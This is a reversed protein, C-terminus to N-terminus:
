IWVWNSLKLGKPRMLTDFILRYGNSLHYCDREVLFFWMFVLINGYKSGMMLGHDLNWWAPKSMLRFISLMLKARHNTFPPLNGNWWEPTDSHLKPRWLWKLTVMPVSFCGFIWTNNMHYFQGSVLKNYLVIDPRWINDSPVHLM